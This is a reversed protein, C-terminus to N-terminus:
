GRSILVLAAFAGLVLLLAPLILGAFGFLAFAGGWVASAGIALAAHRFNKGPGTSPSPAPTTPTTTMTQWPAVKRARARGPAHKCRGARSAALFAALDDTHHHCPGPGRARPGCARHGDSSTRSMLNRADDEFMAATAPDIPASALDRRVSRAPTQPSIGRGRDRPGRRLGRVARAGRARSGCAPGIREHARDAGPCIMSPGCLASRPASAHLSIDHVDDCIPAAPRDRPPADSGALTTGHRQWYAHRLTRRTADLGLVRM